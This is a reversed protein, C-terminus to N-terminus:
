PPLVPEFGTPPAFYLKAWTALNGYTPLGATEYTLHLTGRPYAVSETLRAAPLTSPSATSCLLLRSVGTTQSSRTPGEGRRARFRRRPGRRSKRIGTGGRRADRVRDRDTRPAAGGPPRRELAQWGGDAQRRAMDAAHGGRLGFLRKGLLLYVVVAVNIIFTVLKLWGFATLLEYIELPVFLTTAVFTLYEAWRKAFWLGVMEVAELAAYAVLLFGIDYLHSPSIIFLHRFDGLLGKHADPGGSSGFLGNIIAVYDHKLTSRHGIFFFVATALGALVVVHVAREAAILRLVYRDRLARGRLPVAIEDRDVLSERTPTDPPPRPIWCDCRLCRHWRLHDHERVIVGDEPAISRVDTGVLVHGGFACAILEYRNTPDRNAKRRLL